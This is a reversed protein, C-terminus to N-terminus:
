LLDTSKLCMIEASVPSQPNYYLYSDQMVVIVMYKRYRFFFPTPPHCSTLFDGLYKLLKPIYVVTKSHQYSVRAAFINGSFPSLSVSARQKMKTYSDLMM